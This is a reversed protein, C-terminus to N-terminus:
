TRRKSREEERVCAARLGLGSGRVSGVLFPLTMSAMILPTRWDYIDYVPVDTKWSVVCNPYRYTCNTANTGNM